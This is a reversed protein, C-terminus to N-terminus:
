SSSRALAYGSGDGGAIAIVGTLGSVQVPVSFNYTTGDGLGGQANNGWARVTGDSLLAYASGVSGAIATVGTLVSVRVPVTSQSHDGNGLEGVGNNGWARVTGDSLLAYGNAGGGAAIATVGTLGFVKVPVTSNITTGNGLEGQNNNGWARVTGDSLLAYGTNTGAAIATVRTLGSVKVPAVSNPGMRFENNGWAWVTGDSRLAYGTEYWAAIAIVGTLGSVKVAVLRNIQTGDGLEGDANFGWGWVTGDSRLAYGDSSSGAIARTVGSLGSVKVPVTSQITTGDGLEGSNNNGWAWVTGDSRLAYGGGGRGAIATVSTSGSIKVPMTSQTYTGNGLEGDYNKGWSWVTCPTACGGTVPDAAVDATSTSVDKPTTTATHTIGRTLLFGVVAALVFTVAACGILTRRRSIGTMIGWLSRDTDANTDADRAPNPRVRRLCWIGFTVKNSGTWSSAV